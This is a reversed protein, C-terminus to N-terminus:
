AMPEFRAKWDLKGTPKFETLPRRPRFDPLNIVFITHLSPDDITENHAVSLNEARAVKESRLREGLCLCVRWALKPNESGDGIWFQAMPQAFQFRICSKRNSRINRPVSRTLRSAWDQLIPQSGIAM